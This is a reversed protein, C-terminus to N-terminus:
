PPGRSQTTLRSASDLQEIKSWDLSEKIFPWTRTSKFCYAADRCMLALYWTGVLWASFSDIFSTAIGVSLIGFSLLLLNIRWNYHMLAIFTM